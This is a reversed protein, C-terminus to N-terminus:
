TGTSPRAARRQAKEPYQIRPHFVGQLVSYFAERIRDLDRLTLDCEDLEGAVLRDNTIQRIVRETEAQTAPRNARVAAEIADALMVIATERSQPRPGPYRFDEERVDAGDSEENARRFFYTVLSTGHHEPIFDRVRDPLGYKRALAIGDLTHGIIIEASTKPDLNDHPNQGDSQNEAFFYPRVVKGIDHYYSGVRALLPDAGIAEAAREAMNSVVISHHYSGPAEILLQRFLPHTPRALELLQLSTTIGFLRGIAAFAVFALSASLVANALAMGLLQVLATPEYATTRLRFALLVAANALAVQVASRVFMGLHDLRWLSLAAIVGSIFAYVTLELSGAANHGVILAMIASVMIALHGDLLITVVMAIAAVPFLYPLLTHGPICLRAGVGAIFLTLALLLQRRPRELLLPQTRAVYLSLALVLTFALLAASLCDQWHLGTSLLGLVELKELALETVIEGERLISEGELITWYVPEVANRTAERNATTLQADFFSNPIILNEVLAVVVAQQQGSLAHSLRRRISSRADPLHVNRIEDRMIQDLVRSAESVVSQWEADDLLLITRLVEASLNLGPIEAILVRKHADDAFADQRIASIYTTIQGISQLQRSAIEMDPGTYVDAVRAAATARAENTKVESIYTVQRPAKINRPSPEGVVVTVQEPSAYLILAASWASSLLLAFLLARFTKRLPLALTRQPPVLEAEGLPARNM